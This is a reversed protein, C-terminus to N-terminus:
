LHIREQHFKKICYIISIISLVLFIGPSLIVFIATSNFIIIMIIAWSSSIFLASSFIFLMLLKFSKYVYDEDELQNCKFCYGDNDEFERVTIQKEYNICYAM